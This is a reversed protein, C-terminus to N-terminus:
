PCLSEMAATIHQHHTLLKEVEDQYLNIDALASCSSLTQANLQQNQCLEAMFAAATVTAALEQYKPAQQYNNFFEVAEVIISPLTWYKLLAIAVSHQLQEILQFVEQPEIQYDIKKAQDVCLQLTVPRGISHLLGCIFASEVNRRVARSIEKSWLATLVAHQWLKQIHKEYGPAKFLKTGTSISLCIEGIMTMGLRAIAQQLSVLSAKPSYAASNSVRMVHAALAQDGQILKALQSADSDPDDILTIVQRAIDPLLPVTLEDKELDRRIKAAIIQAHDSLAESQTEMCRTNRGIDLSHRKHNGGALHLRAM